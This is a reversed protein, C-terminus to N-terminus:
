IRPLPRAAPGDLPEGDLADFRSGHCPCDWSREAANFAVICGLHTCRASHVHLRGQPDRYAARQALGAGVVAGEGERM